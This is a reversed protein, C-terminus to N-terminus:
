TAIRTLKRREITNNCFVGLWVGGVSPQKTQVRRQGRQFKWSLSMSEKLFKPRQIGGGGEEGEFNGIARKPQPISIKQFWVNYSVHFCLNKKELLETFSQICGIYSLILTSDLMESGWDSKLKSLSFQLM